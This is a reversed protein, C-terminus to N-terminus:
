RDARAPRREFSSSAPFKQELLRHMAQVAARPTDKVQNLCFFLPTANRLRALRDAYGADSLDVMSGDRVGALRLLQEKLTASRGLLNVRTQRGAGTALAHLGLLYTPLVDSKHRFRQRQTAGLLDAYSRGVERWLGITCPQAFHRVNYRVLRGTCAQVARRTNVLAHRHSNEAEDRVQLLDKQLGSLRSGTFIRPREGEFFDDPQALRGLFFDDNFYIFREALDPIRWLNMEIPRCSFTPLLSSDPFIATHDVLRIKPHTTDLWHPKQGATVIHIRNVWPAFREISRLSYLLEDNDTFRDATLSEEIPRGFQQLVANRNAIWAPDSGDVWTYVIDIVPTPM